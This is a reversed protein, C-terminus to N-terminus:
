SHRKRSKPPLFVCYDTTKPEGLDDEYKAKLRALEKIEWNRRISSDKNDQELRQNREEETEPRKGTISCYVDTDGYHEQVKFAMEVDIWGEDDAEQKLIKLHDIVDNFDMYNDLTGLVDNVYTKKKSTKSTM